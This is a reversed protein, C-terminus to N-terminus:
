EKESGSTTGKINGFVYWSMRLIIRVFTRRLITAATYYDSIMWLKETFEYIRETKTSITLLVRHVSSILNACLVQLEIRHSQHLPLKQLKKGFIMESALASLFLLEQSSIQNLTNVFHQGWPLQCASYTFIKFLFSGFLHSYFHFLIVTPPFFKERNIFLLSNTSHIAKKRDSEYCLELYIKRYRHNKLSEPPEFSQSKPKPEIEFQERM